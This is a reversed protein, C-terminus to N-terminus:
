KFKVVVAARDHADGPDGDVSEVAGGRKIGGVVARNFVDGRRTKGQGVHQDLGLAGRCRRADLLFNGLEAIHGAGLLFEVM